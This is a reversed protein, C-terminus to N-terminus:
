SAAQLNAAEIFGRRLLCKFAAVCNVAFYARATHGGDVERAIEPVLAIDGELDQGRARRLEADLPQEGLDLNRGIKLM